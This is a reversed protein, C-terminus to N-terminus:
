NREFILLQPLWRNDESPRVPNKNIFMFCRVFVFIAFIVIVKVKM